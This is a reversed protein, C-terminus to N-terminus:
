KGCREISKKLSESSKLGNELMKYDGNECILVIPNSLYNVIQIDFEEVLDRTLFIPSIVYYWNYGNRELHDEVSLKNENPDSNISITIFKDGIENYLKRIEDQQKNCSPCWVSFSELVVTRNEFQGITINLGTRVDQLSINAWSKGGINGRHEGKQGIISINGAYVVYAVIAIVIIVAVSRAGKNDM